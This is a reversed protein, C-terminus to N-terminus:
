LSLNLVLLAFREIEVRGDNHRDYDDMVLMAQENSSAIVKPLRAQSWHDAPFYNALLRQYKNPAQNALDHEEPSSPAIKKAVLPPEMWPVAMLVYAQYVAVIAAFTILSRLIRKIM